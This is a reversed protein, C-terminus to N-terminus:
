KRKSKYGAYPNASYAAKMAAAVREENTPGAAAKAASHKLKRVYRSALKSAQKPTYGKGIYHAYAAKRMASANAAAQSKYRRARAADKAGVFGFHRRRRGGKRGKKGGKRRGKKGIFHGKSDRRMRKAAARRKPSRRKNKRKGGSKAFRGKKNRRRGSKKKSM